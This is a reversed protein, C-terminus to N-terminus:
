RESLNKIKNQLEQIKARNEAIQRAKQSELEQKHKERRAVMEPLSHAALGVDCSFFKDLKAEELYRVGGIYKGCPTDPSERLGKELYRLVRKRNLLQRMVFQCYRGDIQIQNIDIEALINEYQNRRGYKEGEPGLLIADTSGYWSIDCDYLTHGKIIIPKGNIILRTTDYFQKFDNAKHDEFEIQCRGDKTASIILNFPPKTTPNPTVSRSTPQNNKKRLKDFIGM